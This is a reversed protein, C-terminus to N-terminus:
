KWKTRVDIKGIMKLQASRALRERELQASSGTITNEYIPEPPLEVAETKPEILMDLAINEECSSGIKGADAM